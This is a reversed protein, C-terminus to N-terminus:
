EEVIPSVLFNDFSVRLGGPAFTEGFLGIDGQTLTDDSVQGVETDNIFFSMESNTVVVRLTNTTNFGLNIAQSDFWDRDVLVTLEACGAQCLAIFAYGDSSIKFLYFNEQDPDARFLMGYGNDETGELPTAEVEFIADAFNRGGAAWFQQDYTNADLTMEYHGGTIQGMANAGEGAMWADATDFTESYPTTQIPLSSRFLDIRWGFIRNALFGCSLLVIVSIGLALVLCAPLKNRDRM